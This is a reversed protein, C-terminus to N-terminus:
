PIVSLSARLGRLEALPGQIDAIKCLREEVLAFPPPGIVTPDHRKYYQRCLSLELVRVDPAVLMSGGIDAILILLTCLVITRLFGPKESHESSM